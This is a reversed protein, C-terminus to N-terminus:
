PNPRNPTDKFLKAWEAESPEDWIMSPGNAAGFDCGYVYSPATFKTVVIRGKFRRLSLAGDPAIHVEKKGLLLTLLVWYWPMNDMNGGFVQKVDM